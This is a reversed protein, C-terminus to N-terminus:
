LRAEIHESANLQVYHRIRDLVWEQDPQSLSDFLAWFIEGRRRSTIGRTMAGEPPRDTFAYSGVTM